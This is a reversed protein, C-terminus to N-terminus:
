NATERRMTTTATLRRDTMLLPTALWSVDACDVTVIVRIPTGATASGPDPEVRVQLSNATIQSGALDDRVQQIVSATSGGDLVATRAGERAALTILQQVMLMRGFEIMGLILLFFVPAVVAFEVAAAGRRTRRFSRCLPHLRFAARRM